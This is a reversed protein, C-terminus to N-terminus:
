RPARRSRDRHRRERHRPGHAGGPRAARRGRGSLSLAADAARDRNGPPCRDQFDTAKGADFAATLVATDDADPPRRLARLAFSAIFQQECADAGAADPDCPVLAAYNKTVADTALKEAAMLYQEALAPSVSLAAANNNFGLRVEETPFDASVATSAGLLERAVNDYETRTLRRIFVPGPDTIAASCLAGTNSGTDGGSPGVVGTCSTAAAALLVLWMTPRRSDDITRGHVPKM